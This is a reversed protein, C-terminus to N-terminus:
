IGNVWKDVKEKSGWAEAPINNYLWLVHDPISNTSDSDAYMIASVLDNRLLASIYGGPIIRSNLYREISETFWEEPQYYNM